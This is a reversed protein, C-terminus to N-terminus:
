WTERCTIGNVAFWERTQTALQHAALFVGDLQANEAVWFAVLASDGAPIVLIYHGASKVLLHEVKGRSLVTSARVGVALLASSMASALDGDMGLPLASYLLMGDVSIVASAEIAPTTENLDLLIHGLVNSSM